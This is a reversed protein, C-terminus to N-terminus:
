PAARGSDTGRDSEDSEDTPTEETDRQRHNTPVVTPHAVGLRPNKAAMETRVEARVALYNGMRM